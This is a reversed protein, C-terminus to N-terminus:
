SGRGEDEPPTTEQKGDSFIHRMTKIDTIPGTMPQVGTIEQALTGPMIRRIMPIMVDRLGDFPNPKSPPTKLRRVIEDAEEEKTMPAKTVTKIEADGADGIWEWKATLKRSPAKKDEPEM